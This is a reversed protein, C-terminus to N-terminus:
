GQRGRQLSANIKEMLGGPTLNLPTGDKRFAPPTAGYTHSRLAEENPAKLSSEDKSRQGQTAPM